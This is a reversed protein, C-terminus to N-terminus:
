NTRLTLHTVEPRCNFRVPVGVVGIGRNTYLQLGGVQYHGRPYKKGLEPIWNPNVLPLQVQGGHSHGSLQLIFRSDQATIDAMDPEHALMLATANEPLGRVTQAWDEHGEYASDLGVIHLIEGNLEVHTWDNNLLRLGVRHSIENVLDPGQWWDHNGRVGFVGLPAQLPRLLTELVNEWAGKRRVFDGTVVIMDTKLNLAANVAHRVMQQSIEPTPIPGVHLDSLHAITLGDFAKPLRPLRLTLREVALWRPEIDSVYWYGLPTAIAAGVTLGLAYRLFIRRPTKPKNNM